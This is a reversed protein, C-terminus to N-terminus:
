SLTKNISKLRNGGNQKRLEDQIGLFLLHIKKFHMYFMILQIIDNDLQKESFKVNGPTNIDNFQKSSCYIDYFMLEVFNNANNIPINSFQELNYNEIYYKVINQIEDSTNVKNLYNEYYQLIKNFNNHKNIDKKVEECVENITKDEFISRLLLEFFFDKNKILETQYVKRKLESLNTIKKIRKQIKIVKDNILELMYNILDTKLNDNVIFNTYRADYNKDKQLTIYKNEVLKKKLGFNVQLWNDRKLLYKKPEIDKSYNLKKDTNQILYLLTNFTAKRNFIKYDKM